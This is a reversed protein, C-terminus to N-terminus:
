HDWMADFSSVTIYKRNRSTNYLETTLVGLFQDICVLIHHHNLDSLCIACCYLPKVYITFYSVNPQYQYVYFHSIQRDVSTMQKYTWLFCRSIRQSEESLCKILINKVMSFWQVLLTTM